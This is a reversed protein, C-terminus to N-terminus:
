LALPESISGGVERGNERERCCMCVCWVCVRWLLTHTHEVSLVFEFLYNSTTEELGEADCRVETLMVERGPREPLSTSWMKGTVAGSLM